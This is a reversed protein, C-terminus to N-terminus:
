SVLGAEQHGMGHGKQGAHVFHHHHLVPTNNLLARVSVKYGSLAVESVEDELVDVVGVILFPLFTLLFLFFFILPHHVRPLLQFFSLFLPINAYFSMNSSLCFFFHSLINQFSIAINNIKPM